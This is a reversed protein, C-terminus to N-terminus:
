RRAVLLRRWRPLIRCRKIVQESAALEIVAAGVADSDSTAGHKFDPYSRITLAMRVSLVTILVVVGLAIGLMSILSIFGIFHNRKKARTYRLGIFLSLPKYM